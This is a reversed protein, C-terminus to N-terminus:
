SALDAKTYVTNRIIYVVTHINMEMSRDLRGEQLGPDNGCMANSSIYLCM